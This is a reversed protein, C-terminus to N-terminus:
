NCWCFVKRLARPFTSPLKENNISCDSGAVPFLLDNTALTFSRRPILLLLKAEKDGIASASELCSDRM